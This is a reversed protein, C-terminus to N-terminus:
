LAMIEIDLDKNKERYKKRRAKIVNRISDAARLTHQTRAQPRARNPLSWEAPPLEGQRQRLLYHFPSRYCELM